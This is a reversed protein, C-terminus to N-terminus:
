CSYRLIYLIDTFPKESLSDRYHFPTGKGPLCGYNRPGCLTSAPTIAICKPASSAETTTASRLPLLTASTTDSM